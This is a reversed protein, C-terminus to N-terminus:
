IEWHGRPTVITPAVPCSRLCYRRSKRTTSEDTAQTGSGKHTRTVNVDEFLNYKILESEYLQNYYPMIERLKTQLKFKWLGVTEFGIERTYYHELIKRCLPIKYGASFIPFDFDFLIPTAKDLVDSVDNYGKSELLGALNECIFRVETTYKSM